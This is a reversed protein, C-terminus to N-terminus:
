LFSYWVWVNSRGNYRTVKYIIPVLINRQITETKAKQFGRQTVSPSLLCNDLEVILTVGMVYTIDISSKLLIRSVVTIYSLM